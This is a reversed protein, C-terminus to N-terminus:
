RRGEREAKMEARVSRVAEDVLAAIEDESHDSFANRARLLGERLEVARKERIVDEVPALEQLSCGRLQEAIERVAMTPM